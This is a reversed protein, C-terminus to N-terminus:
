KSDKAKKDPKSILRYRAYRTPRGDQTKGELIDTEIVYGQEKLSFIVASLRYAQFLEVAQMQTIGKKHTEMFKAIRKAKSNM